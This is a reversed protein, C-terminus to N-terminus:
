CPDYCMYMFAISPINRTYSDKVLLFMKDEKNHSDRKKLLILSLPLVPGTQFLPPFPLSLSSPPLPSFHGLCQIYRHIFSYYYFFFLFIIFHYRHVCSINNKLNIQFFANFFRNQTCKSV